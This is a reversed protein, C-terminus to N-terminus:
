RKSIPFTILLDYSKASEFQCISRVSSVQKYLLGEPAESDSTVTWVPTDESALFGETPNLYLKVSENFAKLQVEATDDDEHKAGLKKKLRHLVSVVEYNPVLHPLTHFVSMVEGPTM